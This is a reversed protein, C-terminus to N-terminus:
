SSVLIKARMDEMFQELYMCSSGGDGLSNRLLTSVKKSVEGFQGCMLMKIKGAVEHRAVAEGDCLNIGIKWDDVVLKRNTPQDYLFPYCIMPVGHWMSELVSNWGCHTLFAGIGPHSLVAEQDCWPVILGKEKVTQEFGSPLVDAADSDTVMNKRVVWIFNIDALLLGHAIEEIVQKTTQVLSGFSVYLVSAPPKSQLWETCETQQVLAKSIKIDRASFNVPGIAYTPLIQNLAQVTKPELEQVTNLLIFDANGIQEYAQFVFRHVVTIEKEQLFSMLDKTGIPDVGPVYTIADEKKEEPPPYHGNKRLLELHYELAFVLAPETWFSVDVMNYKKAIKAHWSNFTDTILLLRYALLDCSKVLNGVLEDVHFIFQELLYEWFEFVNRDRDYDLPFGDSVTAYRIDLGSQRAESFMDTHHDNADSHTKSLLHHVFHTNVFTITFGRSALNIALDVLPNIHGQFPLPIVIAHPRILEPKEAM